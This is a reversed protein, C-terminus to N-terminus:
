FCAMRAYHSDAIISVADSPISFRAIILSLLEKRWIRQDAYIIFKSSRKDYVVRGRPFDIYDHWAPASPLGIKALGAPGKRSLSEWFESHGVSHTFCDGYTEALKLPTLDALLFHKGLDDPVFWFIGVSPSAM